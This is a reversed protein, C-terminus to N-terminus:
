TQSLLDGYKEVGKEMIRSVASNKIREIRHAALTETVGFQESINMILNEDHFNIQNLMHFPIAAYRTFNVSDYEQLEKFAKELMGSQWGCHRLLHCLEHFFVERQTHKDLRSDITISKFSGKEYCYSLIPKYFLYIRFYRAIDHENIDHPSLIGLQRYLRSVWSELPTPYYKM